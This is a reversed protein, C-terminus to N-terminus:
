DITSRKALVVGTAAAIWIVLSGLRLLWFAPAM